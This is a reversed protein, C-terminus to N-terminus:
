PIHINLMLLYQNMTGIRLSPVSCCCGTLCSSMMQSKDGQFWGYRYCCCCGAVLLFMNPSWQLWSVTGIRFWWAKLWCGFRFGWAFLSHQWSQIGRGGISELDWAGVFFGLLRCWGDGCTSLRCCFHWYLAWESWFCSILVQSHQQLIVKLHNVFWFDCQGAVCACM